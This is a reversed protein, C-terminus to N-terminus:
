VIRQIIAQSELDLATLDQIEFRNGDVDLLLLHHEGLWQANEQLSQTVFERTGRDTEATWYTVGFESRADAISRITASLYRRRLEQEVAAQSDPCLDAPDEIMAIEENKGNMLSLFRGPQSLPASWAPKVTIYSIQDGVTLRLRDKPAYFLNLETPKM